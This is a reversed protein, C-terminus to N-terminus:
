VRCKFNGGYQFKNPGITDMDEFSVVNGTEACGLARVEDDSFARDWMQFDAINGPVMQNPDLGGGPIYWLFITLCM